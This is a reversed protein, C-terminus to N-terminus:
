NLLLLTCTLITNTDELIFKHQNQIKIKKQQHGQQSLDLQINQCTFNYFKYCQPVLEMPKDKNVNTNVPFICGWNDFIATTISALIVCFRVDIM